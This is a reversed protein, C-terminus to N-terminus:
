RDPGTGIHRGRFLRIADVTADTFRACGLLRRYAAAAVEYRMGTTDPAVITGQPVLMQLARLLDLRDGHVRRGYYIVIVGRRLAATLRRVPPATTYFTARAPTGSPGDVPPRLPEHEDLRRLQCDATRVADLLRTEHIPPLTARPAPEDLVTVALAALAAGVTMWVAAYRVVASPRAAERVRKDVGIGPVNRITM